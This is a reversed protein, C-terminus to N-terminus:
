GGPAPAADWGCSPGSRVREGEPLAEPYARMLTRHLEYPNALERQVRRTRPNLTLQSLYM